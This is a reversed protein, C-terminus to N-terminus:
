GPPAHICSPIGETTVGSPEVVSRSPKSCALGPADATRTFCLDVAPRGAALGLREYRTMPRDRPRPAVGPHDNRLRPEGSLVALMQAAYPPWDTACHVFGGPAVRDAVLAAFGPQVLRRKHHRTKPWPDPFFLRVGALAGPAIMDRLLEVADGRAVRVNTLAAREVARLLQGLGPAHVDVALVGLGPQAAALAATAEGMGSGIELVVPCGAGFREALDLPRGDLDIGYRPWLRELAGRQTPTLRGRRPPFSRVPPPPGDAPHGPPPGPPASM